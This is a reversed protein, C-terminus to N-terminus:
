HQWLKEGWSECPMRKRKIHSNMMHEVGVVESQPEGTRNLKLKLCVVKGNSDLGLLATCAPSFEAALLHATPPCGATRPRKLSPEDLSRTAMSTSSPATLSLSLSLTALRQLSFRHLIQVSGDALAM